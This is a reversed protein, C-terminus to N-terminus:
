DQPPFDFETEFLEALKKGFAEDGAGDGAVRVTISDGKELGLIMIDYISRLDVSGSDSVIEINGKFTEAAKM